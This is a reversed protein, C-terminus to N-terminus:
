FILTIDLWKLCSSFNGSHIAENLASHISDTLLLANEKIVKTLVDGNQSTTSLDLFNIKNLVDDRKITEFDFSKNEHCFNKNSHYKITKTIKLIFTIPDDRDVPDIGRAFNNEQYPPIKLNSVINTFFTNFTEVIKKKM